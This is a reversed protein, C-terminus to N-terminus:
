RPGFEGPLDSRRAVAYRPRNTILVDIAPDRLGAEIQEDADVTWVMVGIDNRHCLSAVGLRALKHHVAVWDAGCARIRSLPYRESLRVGIRRYRLVNALDRGLSLATRVGPFETKIATVSSDELTTILYNGTGLREEALLVLEREYRTEKLDLHGRLQGAVLDMIRDVRPVEYGAQRCLDAYDLDTLLERSPGAHADHYAVLIRDRTRRIDWEVYEAGTSPARQYAEYTAPRADESGGQHASIDVM